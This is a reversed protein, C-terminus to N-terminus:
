VLCVVQIVGVSEVIEFEFYIHSLIVSRRIEFRSSFFMVWCDCKFWVIKFEGWDFVERFLLIWYDFPTEEPKPVM